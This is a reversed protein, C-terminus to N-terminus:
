GPELADRVAVLLRDSVFPKAIASCGAGVLEQCAPLNGTVYIAPLGPRIRSVEGVLERGDMEPMDVDTVLVDIAAGLREVARLAERGHRAVIVAYGARELLRRLYGRVQPDDDVVLVTHPETGM